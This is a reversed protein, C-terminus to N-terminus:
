FNRVALVVFNLTTFEDLDDDNISEAEPKNKYKSVDVNLVTTPNRNNGVAEAKPMDIEEKVEEIQIEQM